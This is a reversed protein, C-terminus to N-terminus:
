ESVEILQLIQSESLGIYLFSNESKQLIVTDEADDESSGTDGIEVDDESVETNENETNEEFPDTDDSETDDESSAIYIHDYQSDISLATNGNILITKGNSNTGTIISNILTADASTFVYSVGKHSWPQLIGMGDVLESSYMVIITDDYAPTHSYVMAQSENEQTLLTNCTSLYLELVDISEEYPCAYACLISGDDMMLVYHKRSHDYKTFTIVWYYVSYTDFTADTCLFLQTEYTYWNDIDTILPSEYSGTEYLQSIGEKALNVYHAPNYETEHVSVEQIDRPWEGTILDLKESLSLRESVAKSLSSVSANYYENPAEKREGLETIIKRNLFFSPLILSGCVAIIVLFLILPNNKKM